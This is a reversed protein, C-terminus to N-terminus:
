EESKVPEDSGGEQSSTYGAAMAEDMNKFFVQRERPIQNHLETTNRYYVKTQKDGIYAGLQSEKMGSCGALAIALALLIWKM